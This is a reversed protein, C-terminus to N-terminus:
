KPKINLMQHTICQKNGVKSTAGGLYDGFLSWIAFLHHGFPPCIVGLLSDFLLWIDFLYHGFSAWIVFLNRWFAFVFLSCIFFLIRGFNVKDNMKGFNQQVIVPNGDM